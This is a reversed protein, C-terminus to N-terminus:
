AFARGLISQVLAPYKSGDNLCIDLRLTEDYLESARVLAKAEDLRVVFPGAPQNHYVTCNGAATSNAYSLIPRLVIIMLLAFIFLVTALLRLGWKRVAM